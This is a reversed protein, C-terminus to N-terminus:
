QLEQALNATSILWDQCIRDGPLLPLYQPLPLM